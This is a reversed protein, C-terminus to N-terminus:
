PISFSYFLSKKGQILVFVSTTNLILPFWLVTCCKLFLYSCCPPSLSICSPTVTHIALDWAHQCWPFPLALVTQRLDRLLLFVWLMNKECTCHLFWFRDLFTIILPHSFLLSHLNDLMVDDKLGRYHVTADFNVDVSIIWRQSMTAQKYPSKNRVFLM